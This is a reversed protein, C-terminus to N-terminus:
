EGHAFIGKWTNATSALHTIEFLVQFFNVILIGYSNRRFVNLIENHVEKM